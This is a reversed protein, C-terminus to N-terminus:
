RGILDTVIQILANNQSAISSAQAGLLKIGQALQKEQASSGPAAIIADAGSALQPVTVDKFNTNNQVAGLADNFLDELEPSLTVRWRVRMQEIPTLDDDFILRIMEYSNDVTYPSSTIDAFLNPTLERLPPNPSVIEFPM